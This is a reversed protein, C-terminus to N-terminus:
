LAIYKGFKSKSKKYFENIIYTVAQYYTNVNTSRSYKSDLYLARKFNPVGMNM